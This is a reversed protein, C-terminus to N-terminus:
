LRARQRGTAAVVATGDEYAWTEEDAENRLEFQMANARYRVRAPLNRGAALTRTFEATADFAAEEPTRGRFLSLVTNAGGNRDTTFQHDLLQFQGAPLNPHLMPLRAFSTIAAGDDNTADTDFKRIYSDFGGLLVTRNAPDDGTFSFVATPGINTPYQDRWWTNTRQDWYYHDVPDDPQTVPSQFIHVGQWRVDYTMWINTTTLDIETLTRDLRNRSVLEPEGSESAMRYMGNKGLFYLVGGNDWTWAFADVIGITRSVNDIAGGAAPDGRMVWLSNAGGIFMVDDQYPALATVVEGLKGVESANGAVAQIASTTAPSYDWDFPDGSKSMFWNQPDERLGSLVVRGRYVVALRCGLTTDTSGQPLTGATVDTAWDKLENSALDLYQYNASLGDAFFLNQFALATGIGRASSSLADNGNVVTALSDIAVNSRKVDGGSVVVITSERATPTKKEEDFSYFQIEASISVANTSVNGLVKGNPSFQTNRITGSFSNNADGDEEFSLQDGFANSSFDFVYIAGNPDASDGTGVVAIYDGSPHWSIGYCTSPDSFEAPPTLKSGFGASADFPWVNIGQANNGLAFYDTGPAWAVALPQNQFSSVTHKTSGFTGTNPDFDYVRIEDTGSSDDLVVALWLGDPSWLARCFSDSAISEPINIATGLTGSTVPYVKVHPSSTGAAVLYDATPHYDMTVGTGVGHLEEGLYTTSTPSKTFSFRGIRALGDSVFFYNGDRSWVADNNDPSSATPVDLRTAAGFGSADTWAYIFNEDSDFGDDCLIIVFDGDPHWAVCRLFGGDAVTSPAAYKTGLGADQQLPVAEVAIDMAQVAATGSVPSDIMKSIGTRQGGRLRRELSDYPRCNLVHEPRVAVPDPNGSYAASENIGGLPFRM